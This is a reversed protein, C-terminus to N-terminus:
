ALPLTIEFVSGENEKSAFQISGGHEEIIRKAIALSVGSGMNIGLSANTARFFETFVKEQENAPIGYGQDTVRITIATNLPLLEVTVKKDKPSYVLANEIVYLIALSIKKEDALIKASAFKKGIREIRSTDQSTSISTIIKKYLTEISLRKKTSPTNEAETAGIYLLMREIISNLVWVGQTMISQMEEEGKPVTRSEIQWRLNTLPTRLQHSLTSIFTYRKKIDETTKAKQSFLIVISMFVAALFFVIALLFPEFMENLSILDNVEADFTFDYSTLNTLSLKKTIERKKYLKPPITSNSEAIQILGADGNRGSIAISINQNGINTQSFIHSFFNDVDIVTTITGAFTNQREELTEPIDKNKYLPIVVLVGEGGEGLNLLSSVSIDGVDRARYSNETRITDGLSDLGLLFDVENEPYIYQIPLYEKRTGEPQISYNPYGEQRVSADTSVEKIFAEKEKESILPAYSFTQFGSYENLFRSTKVYHYFESRTVTDSSYYLGRASRLASVAGLFHESTLSLFADAERELRADASDYIRKVSQSILIYALVTAICIAAGVMILTFRDRKLYIKKM